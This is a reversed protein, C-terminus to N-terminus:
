FLLSSYKNVIGISFILNSSKFGGAHGGFGGFDRGDGASVASGFFGYTMAWGGTDGYRQLRVGGGDDDTFRRGTTTHGDIVFDFDNAFIKACEDFVGVGGLIKSSGASSSKTFTITEHHNRVTEYPKTHNRIPVPQTSKLGILEKM